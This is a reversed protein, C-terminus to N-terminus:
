RKNNYFEWKYGGASTNKGRVVGSISVPHINLFEGAGKISEWVRILEGDKTLQKVPKRLAM